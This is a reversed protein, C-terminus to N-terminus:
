LRHSHHKWKIVSERERQIDIYLIYLLSNRVRGKRNEHYGESSSQVAEKAVKKRAEKHWDIAIPPRLHRYRVHERRDTAALSYQVASKRHLSSSLCTEWCRLIPSNEYHMHEEQKQEIHIRTIQVIDRALTDSESICQDVRQQLGITAQLTRHNRQDREGESCFCDTEINKKGGKRIRNKSAAVWKQVWSNM